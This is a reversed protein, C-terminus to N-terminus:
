LVRVLSREVEGLGEVDVSSLVVVVDVIGIVLKERWSVDGVGRGLCGDWWGMMEAGGVGEIGDWGMGWVCIIGVVWELDLMGGAKGRAFWGGNKEKGGKGM